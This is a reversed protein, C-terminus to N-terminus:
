KERQGWDTSLPNPFNYIYITDTRNTVITDVQPVADTKVSLVKVVEKARDKYTGITVSWYIAFLVCLPAIVFGLVSRESCVSIVSGILGLISIVLMTIYFGIPLM